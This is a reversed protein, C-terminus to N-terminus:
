MELINQFCCYDWATRSYRPCPEIRRSKLSAQWIKLVEQEVDQLTHRKLSPFQFALKLRTLMLFSPCTLRFSYTLPWPSVRKTPPPPILPSCAPHFISGAPHRHSPPLLPPHRLLAHLQHSYHQLLQFFDDMFNSTAEKLLKQNITAIKFSPLLKAPSSVPVNRNKCLFFSIPPPPPCHWGFYKLM